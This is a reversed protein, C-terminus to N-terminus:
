NGDDEERYTVLLLTRDPLRFTYVSEEDAGWWLEAWAEKVLPELAEEVGLRHADSTVEERAADGLQDIEEWSVYGDPIVLDYANCGMNEISMRCEDTIAERLQEEDECIYPDGEASKGFSLVWEGM